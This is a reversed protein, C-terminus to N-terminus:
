QCKPAWKAVLADTRKKWLGTAVEEDWFADIIELSRDGENRVKTAVQEARTCASPSGLVRILIKGLKAATVHRWHPAMEGIGLREIAYGNCFQDGLTPVIVQPRGASLASGTTGGGGHHVNLAMRPFLWGHPATKAFFCNKEAYDTLAQDGASRLAELSMGAWGEMIVARRGAMKLAGVCVSVMVRGAADGGCSMSGFGFQIPEPGAAIFEELGKIAENDGFVSNNSEKGMRLQENTDFNMYGTYHINDPLEDIPYLVEGILRPQAIIYPRLVGQQQKTRSGSAEVEMKMPCLGVVESLAKDVKTTVEKARAASVLLPLVGCCFNLCKCHMDPAGHMGRGLNTFVTAFQMQITPVKIGFHFAAVTRPQLAHCVVLDPKWDKAFRLWKQTMETAEDSNAHKVVEGLKLRGTKMTAVWGPNTTLEEQFSTASPFFEIGIEEAFQQADAPGGFLVACGLKKFKVAMAMFPQTDGRSGGGSLIVRGYRLPAEPWAGGVERLCVGLTAPSVVTPPENDIDEVQMKMDQAAPGASAAQRLDANMGCKQFERLATLKALRSRHEM